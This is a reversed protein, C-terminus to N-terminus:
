VCDGAALLHTCWGHVATCWMHMASTVNSSTPVPQWSAEPQLRRHAAMMFALLAASMHHSCQFWPQCSSAPLACGWRNSKPASDRGVSLAVMHSWCQAMQTSQCVQASPRRPATLGPLLLMLWEAYILSMFRTPWSCCAPQGPLNQLASASCCIIKAPVWFPLLAQQRCYSACCPPKTLQQRLGPWGSAPPLDVQHMLQLAGRVAHSYSCLGAQAVCQGPQLGACSQGQCPLGGPAAGGGLCPAAYVDRSPRGQLHVHPQFDSQQHVHAILVQCCGKPQRFASHSQM